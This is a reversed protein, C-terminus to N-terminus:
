RHFRRAGCAPQVGGLGRRGAAFWGRRSSAQLSEPDNSPKRTYRGTSNLSRRFARADFDAPQVGSRDAARELVEKAEAAAAVRLPRRAAAAPRRAAGGGCSSSAPGAPARAM